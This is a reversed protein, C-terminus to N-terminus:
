WTDVLKSLGTGPYAFVKYKHKQVRDCIYVTVGTPNVPSTGTSVAGNPFFTINVTSSFQTAGAHAATDGFGNYSTLYTGASSTINWIWAHSNVPLNNGDDNWATPSNGKINGIQYTCGGSNSLGATSAPSCVLRRASGDSMAENRARLMMFQLGRALSATDQGEGAGTLSFMAVAALVGTIAVVTLLEPL